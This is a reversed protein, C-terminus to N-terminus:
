RPPRVMLARNLLQVFGARCGNEHSKSGPQTTMVALACGAELAVAFRHRLLASQVGRRRYAPLTTAGCLQALGHDLRLSSVGALEGGIWAGYRLFGPALLFGEFASELLERPPLEPAAVGQTDAHLFGNVSEDLWLRGEHPAMQRILMGPPPAPDGDAAALSRGLVNEFGELLYGRTALLRAVAPDAFSSLEAQLAAGMADFHAEIRGLADAEPLGAFGVGIMKSMPSMPGAYAVAGGALAEVLLGERKGQAQLAKGVALTLGAEARDIRAALETSVFM